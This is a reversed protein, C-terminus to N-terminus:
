DGSTYYAEIAMDPGNTVSSASMLMVLDYSLHPDETYSTAGGANLMEWLTKGRDDINLAGGAGEIQDVRALAGTISLADAFLNSDVVAGDHANGELYLGLDCESGTGNGDSSVLLEILRDGSKFTMLRLQETDLFLGVIRAKKYRIRGHNVGASNIKPLDPLTIVSSGDGSILDSYWTAMENESKIALFKRCSM